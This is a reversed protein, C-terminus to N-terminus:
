EYKPILQNIKVRLLRYLKFNIMAKLEEKQTLFFLLHLFMKLPINPTNKAIKIYRDYTM